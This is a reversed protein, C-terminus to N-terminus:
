LFIRGGYESLEEGEQQWLMMLYIMCECDFDHIKLERKVVKCFVLTHVKHRNQVSMYYM